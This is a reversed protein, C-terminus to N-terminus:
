NSVRFKIGDIVLYKLGKPDTKPWHRLFVPTGLPVGNLANEIIYKTDGVDVETKVNSLLGGGSVARYGDLIGLKDESYKEPGIESIFADSFENLKQKLSKFM